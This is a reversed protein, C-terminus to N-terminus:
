GEKGEALLWERRLGDKRGYDLAYNVLRKTSVLLARPMTAMRRALFRARRRLQEDAVVQQVLGWRQAEAADIVRGSLVLDLARGIGLARPLTQTGAVGPIMGLGTEPLSFTAGRAAIVQDCLMMMEFGGGRVAGHVAAITLQPLGQLVGWVDRSWRVSRARTPSPATGFESLDGGSGFTSGTGMLLVVGVESDDRIATFVEYLLDRMAVNYANRRSPRNLTVEAIDGCKEFLVIPEGAGAVRDDLGVDAQSAVRSKGAYLVCM